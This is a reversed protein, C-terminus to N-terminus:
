PPLFSRLRRANFHSWLYAGAHDVSDQRCSVINFSPRPVSGSDFVLLNDESRALASIQVGDDALCLTISEQMWRVNAREFWIAALARANEAWVVQAM